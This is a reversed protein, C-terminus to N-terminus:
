ARMFEDNDTRAQRAAKGFRTLAFMTVAFGVVASTAGIMVTNDSEPQIAATVHKDALALAPDCFQWVGTSALEGRYWFQTTWTCNDNSIFSKYYMDNEERWVQFKWDSDPVDWEPDGEQRVSTQVKMETGSLYQWDGESSASTAVENVVTKSYSEIKDSFYVGLVDDFVYTDVHVNTIM